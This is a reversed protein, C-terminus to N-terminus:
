VSLVTLQSWLRYFIQKRGSVGSETSDILSKDSYSCVFKGTSQAFSRNVCYLFRNLGSFIDVFKSSDAVTPDRATRIDSYNRSRPSLVSLEWRRCIGENGKENDLHNIYVLTTRASERARSRACSAVTYNGTQQKGVARERRNSNRM